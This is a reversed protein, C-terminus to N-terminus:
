LHGRASVPIPKGQVPCHVRSSFWGRVSQFLAAPLCRLGPHSLAEGLLGQSRMDAGM